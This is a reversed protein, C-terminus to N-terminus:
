AHVYANLLAKVRATVLNTDVTSRDISSYFQKLILGQAKKDRAQPKSESIIDSLKRDIEAESLLPPVFTLLIDAEEREKEALEPRSAKEFDAASEAQSTTDTM